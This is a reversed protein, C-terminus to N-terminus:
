QQGDNGRRKPQPPSASLHSKTAHEDRSQLITMARTVTDDVRKAFGHMPYKLMTDKGFDLHRSRM